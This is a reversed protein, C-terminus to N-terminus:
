EKIVTMYGTAYLIILTSFLGMFISNSTIIGTLSLGKSVLPMFYMQAQLGPIGTYYAGNIM